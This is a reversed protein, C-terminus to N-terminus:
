LLAKELETLEAYDSFFNNLHARRTATMNRPETLYEVGVLDIDNTSMYLVVFLRSTAIHRYVNGTKIKSM